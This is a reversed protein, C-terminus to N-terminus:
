PKGCCKHAHKRVGEGKRCKPLISLFNSMGKCLNSPCVM